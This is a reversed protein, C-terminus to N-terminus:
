STHSAVHVARSRTFSGTLKRFATCSPASIRVKALLAPNLTSTISRGADFRQAQASQQGHVLATHVWGRETHQLPLRLIGTFLFGKTSTPFPTTYSVPPRLRFGVGLLMSWIFHSMAPAAATAQAM